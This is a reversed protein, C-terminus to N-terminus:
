AISAPASALAVLVLVLVVMVVMVVVLVVVLVSGGSEARCLLTAGVASREREGWRRGEGELGARESTM